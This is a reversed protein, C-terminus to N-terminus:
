GGLSGLDVDLPISWTTGPIPLQAITFKKQRIREYGWLGLARAVDEPSGHDPLRGLLERAQRTGDYGAQSLVDNSNVLVPKRLRMDVPTLGAEGLAQSVKQRLWSGVTGGFVGDLDDLARSAESGVREYTSGYGVLLEGWAGTLDGLVGGVSFGDERIGDFVRSLVNNQSTQNDPALVAASIAAGAPLGSSGVYASSLGRPTQGQGRYVVSVCGWAGPPLLAPKRVGLQDLAKEFAGIGEGSIKRLEDEADAQQNRADVYEKSADVVLKWYHEYGNNASTSIAAVKGMDGTSMRCIPCVGAQGAEQGALSANGAWPGKAGPCSATSHLVLGDPEFTCPWIADSYLSTGRVETANCPLYPLDMQVHGDPMEAYHAQNMCRLAYLYFARRVASDTQEEIQDSTPSETALRAAYYARSRQLPVGFNWLAPVSYSPNLIGGLGALTEARQRLCSPDDVCDARWGRQRAADARQKAEELRGSADRLRRSADELEDTQVDDELAQFDSQSQQPFPIACGVYDHGGSNAQLVRASNAVVLYPLVRELGELGKAASRAFGRRADAIGKGMRTVAESLSQAGPIAALVLGAGFVVLGMLGLSLVCADVVQAITSFAAVPNQGALACADAVEQVDASRSSVWQTMSLSFALSLCVLLAVAVAVTTYGGDDALFLNLPCGSDGCASGSM